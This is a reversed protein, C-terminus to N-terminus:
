TFLLYRHSIKYVQKQVYQHAYASLGPYGDAYLNGFYGILSYKPTLRPYVLM